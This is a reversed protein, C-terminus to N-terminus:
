TQQRMCARSPLCTNRDVNVSFPTLCLSTMHSAWPRGTPFSPIQSEIEPSSVKLNLGRPHGNSSVPFLLLFDMVSEELLFSLFTHQISLERYWGAAPVMGWPLRTEKQLSYLSLPPCPLPPSPQPLSCLPFPFPEKYLIDSVTMLPTSYSRPHRHRHHSLESADVALIVAEQQNNRPGAKGM